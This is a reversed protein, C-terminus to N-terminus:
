LIRPHYSQSVRMQVAVPPHGVQSSEATRGAYTSFILADPSIVPSDSIAFLAMRWAKKYLLPTMVSIPVRSEYALESLKPKAM